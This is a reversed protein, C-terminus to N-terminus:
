AGIVRYAGFFTRKEGSETNVSGGAQQFCFLEVYDSSGNMDIVTNVLCGQDNNSGTSARTNAYSSGNKYIQAYLHDAACFVGGYVFYKGATQPTFKDSAFASDSDLIETYGSIKVSTADAISQNSTLHAYFAPTNSLSASSVTVADPITITGSGSSTTITGVKLTGDAM